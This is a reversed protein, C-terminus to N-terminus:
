WTTGVSRMIQEPAGYSNKIRAILEPDRYAYDDPVNLVRVNKLGPYAELLKAEHERTMCLIEDAWNIHADNIPTLAYPEVGVARTNYNYPEQSLVVAATASRLIGASCVCLVRKYNGQYPNAAIRLASNTDYKLTM